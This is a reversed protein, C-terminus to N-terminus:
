AIPMVKAAKKSEVNPNLHARDGDMNGASRIPITVATAGNSIKCGARPAPIAEEFVGVGTKFLM